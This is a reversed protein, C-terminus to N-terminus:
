KTKSKGDCYGSSEEEEVNFLMKNRVQNVYNVLVNM